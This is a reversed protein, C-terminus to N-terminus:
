AYRVWRWLERLTPKKGYMLIGTRYIRAALAVMLLTFATTLLYGAAIQWAPPTKVALRLVMLLPTFCPLLSLVTSLTSDPDNLVTWFFLVPAILFLVAFGAFQQAEQVNNFAAGIAAYITSYAFFGLVFFLLFHITLAPRLSPLDIGAPLWTLVAVVGPLTFLALAALWIGLQTLAVACIGTLKGLMLEFPRTTAVVLEVIRSSKEELVGTMVQQGYVVLVTYLLFFLFYALLIGAEAGEARSGEESVRVTALAVPRALRSIEAADYGAAALRQERVAASLERELLQQTLFNSVSAARYEVRDAELEGPDLWVWADIEGDLIRRDLGRRWAAPEADDGEARATEVAVEFAAGGALVSGAAALRDAVAQGLGGGAGDAVVLRHVAAPRAVLLAPVIGLAALLLPLSVTTIWFLKSRVRSLYERGVIVAVRDARM